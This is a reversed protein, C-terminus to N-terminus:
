KALEIYMKTIATDCVCVVRNNLQILLWIILGSVDVKRNLQM